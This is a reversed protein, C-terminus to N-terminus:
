AGPASADLVLGVRDQRDQAALLEALGFGEGEGARGGDPRQEGDDGDQVLLDLDQLPLDIRM